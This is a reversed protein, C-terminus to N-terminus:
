LVIDRMKYENADCTYFFPVNCADALRERKSEEKIEIKKRGAENANVLECM